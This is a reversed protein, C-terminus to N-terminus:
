PYILGDQPQEAAIIAVKALGHEGRQIIHAALM